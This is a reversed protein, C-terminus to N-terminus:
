ASSISVIGSINSLIEILEREITSNKLEIEFSAKVIKGSNDVSFKRIFGLKVASGLSKLIADLNEAEIRLKAKISKEEPEVLSRIAQKTEYCKAFNFWDSIIQSDKAYVLEVRDGPRLEHWIPVLKGNVRACATKPAKASDVKFSFDLVTSGRPMFIPKGFSDFVALERELYDTRLAEEFESEDAKALERLKLLESPKKKAKLWYAIGKEEFEDTERTRIYVKIPAGRPGIVSTHLARYHGLPLAIYDKFKRPMPYFMSHVAKLAEYCADESSAVIVLAIYDYLEELTKGEKIKRFYHYLHKKEKKFIFSAFPKRVLKKKLMEIAEDIEADKEKYRKELERKLKKFEKPWLQAFCIDEIEHQMNKLGFQEALPAYFELAQKCIEKRKKVPLYEITRLNHLKDALKILLVREDKSAYNLLKRLYAHKNTNESSVKTLAYVLEAVESGFEQELEKKKVNTDELIDHLLAAAITKADVDYDSLILATSILHNFYPEGSFRKQKSHKKKSFSYAKKILAFEKSALKSRIFAIAHKVLVVDPTAFQKAVRKTLEELQEEKEEKKKKAKKKARKKIKLIM